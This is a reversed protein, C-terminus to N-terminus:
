RRTVDNTVDDGQANVSAPATAVSPVATLQLMVPLQSNENSFAAIWMDDLVKRPYSPMAKAAVHTHEAAAM